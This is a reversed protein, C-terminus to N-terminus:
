EKDKNYYSPDRGVDKGCDVCRFAMDDEVNHRVGECVIYSIMSRDFWFDKESGCHPCVNTEEEKM